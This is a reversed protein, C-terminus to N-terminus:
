GPYGTNVDPVSLGRPQVDEYVAPPAGLPADYTAGASPMRNYQTTLEQHVDDQCKEIDDEETGGYSPRTASPPTVIIRNNRFRGSDTFRTLYKFMSSNQRRAPTQNEPHMRPFLLSSSHRLSANVIVTFVHM